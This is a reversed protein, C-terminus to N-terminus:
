DRREEAEIPQSVAEAYEGAILALAAAESVDVPQVAQLSRYQEKELEPIVALRPLKKIAKIIL